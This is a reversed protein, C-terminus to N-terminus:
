NINNEAVDNVTKPVSSFMNDRAEIIKDRNEEEEGQIKQFYDIDCVIDNQVTENYSEIQNTSLLCKGNGVLDSIERECKRKKIFCFISSGLVIILPIAFYASFYIAGGSLVALVILVWFAIKYNRCNKEAEIFDTNIKVEFNKIRTGNIEDNVENKVIENEKNGLLLKELLEYFYKVATQFCIISLMGVQIFVSPIRYTKRFPYQTNNKCFAEIYNSYDRCSKGCLLFDM